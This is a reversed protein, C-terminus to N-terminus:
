VRGRKRLAQVWISEQAVVQGTCQVNYQRTDAVWGYEEVALNTIYFKKLNKM